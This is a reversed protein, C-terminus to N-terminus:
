TTHIIDWYIEESTKRKFSSLVAQTVSQFTCPTEQHMAEHRRSSHSHTKIEPISTFTPSPSNSGHLTSYCIAWWHHWYHWHRKGQTNTGLPTLSFTRHGLPILLVTVTTYPEAPLVAPAGQQINEQPYKWRGSRNFMKHWGKLNICISICNQTNNTACKHFGEGQSIKVIHTECSSHPLRPMFCTVFSFSLKIWFIPNLKKESPQRAAWM